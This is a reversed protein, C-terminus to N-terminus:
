GQGTFIFPSVQSVRIYFCNGTSTRGVPLECYIEVKNETANKCNTFTQNQFNEELM